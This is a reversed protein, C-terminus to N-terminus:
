RQFLLPLSEQGSSNKIVIRHSGSGLAQSISLNGPRSRTAASIIWSTGSNNLKMSFQEKGDVILVATSDIRAGIANLVFKGTRKLRPFIVIPQPGLLEVNSFCAGGLGRNGNNFLEGPQRDARGDFNLDDFLLLRSSQVQGGSVLNRTIALRKGDLSVALGGLDSSFGSLGTFTSFIFPSSDAVQSANLDSYVAINDSNAINLAFLPATVYFDTGVQVIDTAVAPRLDSGAGQAFIGGNGASFNDPVGNGDNDYYSYIAGMTVRGSNDYQGLNFLISTEVGVSFGGLSTFGNRSTFFRSFTDVEGNSNRDLYVIMSANDDATYFIRDSGPDVRLLYIAETGDDLIGTTIGIGLGTDSIFDGFATVDEAIYDGNTDDIQIMESDETIAFYRGFFLQSPVIKTIADGTEVASDAMVTQQDAIGDNNSDRLAIVSGGSSGQAQFDTTIVVQNAPADKPISALISEAQPAISLPLRSRSAKVLEDRTKPGVNIPEALPKGKPLVPTPEVSAGQKAAIRPLGVRKKVRSTEKVKLDAQAHLSGLVFILAFIILLMRKM